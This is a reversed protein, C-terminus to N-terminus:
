HLGTWPNARVLLWSNSKARPPVSGPGLVFPRRPPSDTFAVIGVRKRSGNKGDSKGESAVVRPQEELALVFIPCAQEKPIHYNGVGGREYECCCREAPARCASQRDIISGGIM